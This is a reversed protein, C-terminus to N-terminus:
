KSNAQLSDVLCNHCRVIREEEPMDAPGPVIDGCKIPLLPNILKGCTYKM